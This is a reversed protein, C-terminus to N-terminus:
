GPTERGPKSELTTDALAKNQAEALQQLLAYGPLRSRDAAETGPATGPDLLDTIRIKHPPMALTLQAPGDEQPMQHLLGRRTLEGILPDLTTTPTNLQGAIHTTSVTQGQEFADAVASMVPIVLWPDPASGGAGGGSGARGWPGAALTPDGLRGAPLTQLIHTVKLGALVVLWTLYAWLLLLPILALSGYLAAHTPNIVAYDIYGRLAAKMGEWALASTMAGIMAPRMGIPTNPMLRFLLLFLLWTVLLAMFRNVGGLLTGLVWVDQSAAILQSSLYFSAWILVPGLTIVAWYIPIRIHWPRGQPAKCVVNFNKEICIILGLAAWILALTGVVGISGIHIDGARGAIDGLLADIRRRMEQNAQARDQEPDSVAGEDAHVPPLPQMWSFPAPSTDPPIAPDASGPSGPSGPPDTSDPPPQTEVEVELELAGYVLGTLSQQTDSFGGFAKFVILTMVILPVIGFITRYTLAAAMTAASDNRLENRAHRGLDIGYRILRQGRTLQTKPRTLALRTERYLRHLWHLM